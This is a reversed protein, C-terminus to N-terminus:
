LRQANLVKKRPRVEFGNRLEFIQELTKAALMPVGLSSTRLRFGTEGNGFTDLYGGWGWFGFIEVHCHTGIFFSETGARSFPGRISPGRRPRARLHVTSSTQLGPCKKEGVVKGENPPYIRASSVFTSIGCLLFTAAFWIGAMLATQTSIGTKKGIRSESSKEWNKRASEVETHTDGERGGERESRTSSYPNSANPASPRLSRM